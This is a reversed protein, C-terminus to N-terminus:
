RAPASFVRNYWISHLIMHFIDYKVPNKHWLFHQQVKKVRMQLRLYEKQPISLLINKLNPIDKELVIVAFAKWNLVEFFPPVFNDSIIVPVCEFFIAEVVRPSNVEYGRACICYKSSKMYQIYNRNGRSKPLRGFIKMDPDKNEWHQLLIPRVYGHMSGAFFALNPRKSASNGGLDKTPTQANRVNTEPLSADKGFVFGEKVDANCLSRICNAMYVKTEGPAWDHCGVLFHDAGGTRNWFTYKGAIMEVYQHLFQVLNKSSHSNQVYLTEELMRSSFPLYFLHAKNPKRTVFKRSSEMHKMFWGESAYIGTFFPSHMIPRAGESYVYVKLTKEMLEYSRKFMSVNHYIPGYLNPDNKLIPANEIESRAHLLEQDVASFWRPRMSRYSAHSQLLLKNMESVTTVEPIPSHSDKHKNPVTVKADNQSSRVRKEKISNTINDKHFPSITSDNSLVATIIISSVNTSSANQNGSKQQTSSINDEPSHNASFSLGITNNFNSSVSDVPQHTESVNDSRKISEVASNQDSGDFGLSINPTSVPGLVFGTRPITDNEGSMWTKNAVEYAHGVTSNESNFLTVNNVLESKSAADSTSNGPTPIKDASFRSILVTGSPFEFYKRPVSELTPLEKLAIQNVPKSNQLNYVKLVHGFKYGILAEFHNHYSFNDHKSVVTLLWREM